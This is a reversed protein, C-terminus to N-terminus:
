VYTNPSFSYPSSVIAPAAAPFYAEGTAHRFAWGSATSIPAPARTQLLNLVWFTVILSFTVALVMGPVTQLQRVIRGM